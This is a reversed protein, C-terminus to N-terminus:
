HGKRPRVVSVYWTNYYALDVGFVASLPSVVQLNIIHEGPPLPPLVTALGLMWIAANSGYETPEPYV